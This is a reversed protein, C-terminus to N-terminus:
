IYRVMKEDLNPTSSWLFSRKSKLPTILYDIQEDNGNSLASNQGKDIDDEDLDNIASQAICQLSAELRIRENEFEAKEEENTM